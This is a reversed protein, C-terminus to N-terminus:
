NYSSLCIFSEVSDIWNQQVVRDLILAHWSSRKHFHFREYWATLGFLIKGLFWVSPLPKANKPIGIFNVARQTGNVNWLKTNRLTRAAGNTVDKGKCLAFKSATFKLLLLHKTLCNNQQKLFHLLQKRKHNKKIYFAMEHNCVGKKNVIIPAFHCSRLYMEPFYMTPTCFSLLCSITRLVFRDPYRIATDFVM